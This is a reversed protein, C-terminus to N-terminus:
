CEGTRQRGHLRLFCDGHVGRNPNINGLPSGTKQVLLALVGAFTPAGASTGGTVELHSTADLFGNTCFSHPCVILGNTSPSATLAIDPVDRAGDNPVGMGTQWNPKPFLVSAGGGSAALASVAASDNWVVEPVYQLASGGAANNYTHWFPAGEDGLTTGGVGTVNPSSAPFEVALGQTAPYDATNSPPIFSDCGAAGDDGSANIITMGEANAQQFLSTIASVYAPSLEGECVGYSTSLVPAVNNDIAYFISDNLGNNVTFDATVFLVNANKAIANSWELDLDSEGEDGTQVGPDTDYPLILVTVAKAPLNAEVRFAALDSAQVDSQGVIVISCPHGGCLTSGNNLPSGDWGAGYLPKVDYITEWDDPALITTGGNATFHSRVRIHPKMHFNHLGSVALVMGELAM